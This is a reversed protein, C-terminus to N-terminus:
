IEKRERGPLFARIIYGSLLNAAEEDMRLVEFFAELLRAVNMKDFTPEIYPYLDVAEIAAKNGEILAYILLALQSEMGELSLAQEAAEKNGYKEILKEDLAAEKQADELTELILTASVIAIAIDGIASEVIERDKDELGEGMGELMAVIKAEEVTDGDSECAAELVSLIINNQFGNEEIIQAVASPLVM